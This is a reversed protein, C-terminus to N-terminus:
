KTAEVSRTIVLDNQKQLASIFIQVANHVRKRRQDLMPTGFVDVAPLPGFSAKLEHPFGTFPSDQLHSVLRSHHEAASLKAKSSYAGEVCPFWAAGYLEDRFNVKSTSLPEIWNLMAQLLEESHYAKRAVVSRRPHQVPKKKKRPSKSPSRPNLLRRPSRSVQVPKRPSKLVSGSRSKVSIKMMGGLETPKPADFKDLLAETIGGIHTQNIELPPSTFEPYHYVRYFAQTTSYSILVEAARVHAKKQGASILLLLTAMQRLRQRAEVVHEVDSNCLKGLKNLMESDKKSLKVKSTTRQQSKAAKNASKSKKSEAKKKPKSSLGELKEWLQKAVSNAGNWLYELVETESLRHIPPSSDGTARCIYKIKDLAIVLSQVRTAAIGDVEEASIAEGVGKATPNKKRKGDRTLRESEREIVTLILAAFKKGWEPLGDLVSSRLGHKDLLSVDCPRLESECSEVIM